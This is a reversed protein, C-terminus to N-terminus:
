KKVAEQLVLNALSGAQSLGGGGHEIVVAFAYPHESDELFGVFWAHSTGDGVEATGSKACISLNPFNWTGYNNVVNYSMFDRLKEATGAKLLKASGGSSDLLLHPEPCSGGGAVAGVLRMMAYPSVLDNYQGIGSWALGPSGDADKDYRGAATSIGDFELQELLGFKEAYKEITDAGLDLSLEAFACNCSNGFAQEITQSGHTGSCNIRVGAVDVYGPCWFSRTYLDDLNEIAAALTIIKFVSGPTYTSSIGRNLFAGDYAPDSLDPVNMPDYSVSSTMCIIDGTTYDFVLVAGRRGNLGSYAVANLASDITLRLEGGEAKSLGSVIDYGVLKDSFVTVAGSGINGSFDGVAHLNATRVIPDDHYVRQGNEYGALVVGNRDYVTGSKLEGGEYITQNARFSAWESGENVLRYVYIGMGAVVLVALLLASYARRKIKKM